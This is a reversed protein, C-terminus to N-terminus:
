ECKFEIKKCRYMPQYTPVSDSVKKSSDEFTVQVKVYKSDELEKQGAPTSYKPKLIERGAKTEYPCAGSTGDGNEGAANIDVQVKNIDFGGQGAKAFLAPLIKNKAAEARAQSLGLFGKKCFRKEADGTNNLASASSNISVHHLKAGQSLRENICATLEQAEPTNLVQKVESASMDFKNNEFNKKFNGACPKFKQAVTTRAELEPKSNCIFFTNLSEDSIKQLNDKAAQVNKPEALEKRMERLKFERQERGMKDARFEKITPHPEIYNAGGRFTPQCDMKKGFEIYKEVFAKKYEEKSKANEAFAPDSFWDMLPVPALKNQVEYGGMPGYFKELWPSDKVASRWNRKLEAIREPSESRSLQSEIIKRMANVDVTSGEKCQGQNNIEECSVAKIQSANKTLDTAPDCKGVVQALLTQSVFALTLIIGTKM